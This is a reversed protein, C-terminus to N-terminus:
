STWDFVLTGSQPDVGRGVLGSYPDGAVSIGGGGIVVAAFEGSLDVWDGGFGPPINIDIPGVVRTPEGGPRSSANHAYFHLTTVDNYNGMRRRAPLYIRFRTITRGALSSPSTGYFWAGTSVRGGYAGQVVDSGFTRDNWGAGVQYTGSDIAPVGLDGNSAPPPPPQPTPLPDVPAPPAPPATAGILGIAYAVTDRWTLLVLDGIAPSPYAVKAQYSVGAAEVTITPSAAPAATVTAEAPPLALSSPSSGVACLVLNSSQGTAGATVLVAVADGEIPHYNRSWRASQTVGGVRVVLSGDQSAVDGLLLRTSPSLGLEGLLPDIM